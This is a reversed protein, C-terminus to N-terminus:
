GFRIQHILLEEGSLIERTPQGCHACKFVYNHVGSEQGCHSCHIRIEVLETQLEVQAYQPTMQQFASFANKLLIPEVNALKGIRLDVGQLQEMEEQSLQEELSSFIQQVLSFEHM